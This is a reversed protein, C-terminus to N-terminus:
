SQSVVPHSGRAHWVVDNRMIAHEILEAASPHTDDVLSFVGREAPKHRQLKQGVFKRAIRLLEFAELAFRSGGRRQVMGVDAGNVFDPLVFALGVDGHFQHLARRQLVADPALGDLHFPHEIPSDFHGVREVRCVLFADDVAVDLRGINKNGAAAM